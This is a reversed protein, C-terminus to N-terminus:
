DHDLGVFHDFSVALAKTASTSLTCRCLSISLRRVKSFARLVRNALRLVSAMACRIATSQTINATKYEM